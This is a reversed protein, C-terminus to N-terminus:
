NVWTVVLYKKAPKLELWGVILMEETALEEFSFLARWHCHLL